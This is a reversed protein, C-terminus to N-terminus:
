LPGTETDPKTDLDRPKTFGREPLARAFARLRAIANSNCLRLHVRARAAAGVRVSRLRHGAADRQATSPAAHVALTQPWM